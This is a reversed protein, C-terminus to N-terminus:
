STKKVEKESVSEEWTGYETNLSKKFKAEFELLYERNNISNGSNNKASLQYEWYQRIRLIAVRRM